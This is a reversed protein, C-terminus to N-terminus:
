GYMCDVDEKVQVYLLGFQNSQQFSLNQLSPNFTYSMSVFTFFAPPPQCDALTVPLRQHTPDEHFFIHLGPLGSPM